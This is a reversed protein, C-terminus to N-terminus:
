RKIIKVSEEGKGDAKTLTLVYIGDHLNSIDVKNLSDHLEGNTIAKGTIDSLMYKVDAKQQLEINVETTAPNPYVKSFMEYDEPDFQETISNTDIKSPANINGPVALLTDAPLSDMIMASLKRMERKDPHLRIVSSDKNISKVLGKYEGKLIRHDIVKGEYWPANLGYLYNGKLKVAYILYSTDNLQQSFTIYDVSNQFWEM